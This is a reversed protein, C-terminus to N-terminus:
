SDFYYNVRWNDYPKNSIDWIQAAACYLWYNQLDLEHNIHLVDWFIDHPYERWADGKVWLLPQEKWKRPDIKYKEVYHNLHYLEAKDEAELVFEADWKAQNREEEWAHYAEWDVGEQDITFCENYKDWYCPRAKPYYWDDDYSPRHTRKRIDLTKEERGYRKRKKGKPKPKPMQEEYAAMLELYDDKRITAHVHGAYGIRLMYGGILARNRINNVGHELLGIILLLTSM